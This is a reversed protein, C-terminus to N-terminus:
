LEPEKERWISKLKIRTQTPNPASTFVAKLTDSPKVVLAGSGNGARFGVISGSALLRSNMLTQSSGTLATVVGLDVRVNAGNRDTDFWAEVLGGSSTRLGQTGDFPNQISCSTYNAKGGTATCWTEKYVQYCGSGFCDASVTTVTSDTYRPGQVAIYGSTALAAISAALGTTGVTLSTFKTPM